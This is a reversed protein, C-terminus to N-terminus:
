EENRCPKKCLGNTYIPGASATRACAITNLTQKISPNDYLIQLPFALIIATRFTRFIYIPLLKAWSKANAGFNRALSNGFDNHWVKIIFRLYKIDMM